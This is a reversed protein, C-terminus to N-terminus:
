KRLRQLRYIYGELRNKSTELTQYVNYMVDMLERKDRRDMDSKQVNEYLKRVDTILDKDYYVNSVLTEMIEQLDESYTTYDDGFLNSFLGENVDNSENIVNNLANNIQTKSINNKM